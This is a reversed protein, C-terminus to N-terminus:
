MNICATPTNLMFLYCDANNADDDDDRDSTVATIDVAHHM